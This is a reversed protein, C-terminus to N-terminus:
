SAGEVRIKLKLLRDLSEPTLKTGPALRVADAGAVSPSIESWTLWSGSLTVTSGRPREGTERAHECCSPPESELGIFAMGRKKLPLVTELLADWEGAEAGLRDKLGSADFIVPAGSRLAGETLKSAPSATVKSAVELIIELTGGPVVLMDLTRGESMPNRLAALDYSRAVGTAPHANSYYHVWSFGDVPPVPAPLGHWLFGVRKKSLMDCVLDAIESINPITM